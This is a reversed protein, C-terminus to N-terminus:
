PHFVPKLGEYLINAAHGRYLPQFDSDSEELLDLPNGLNIFGVSAFHGIASMKACHDIIEAMNEPLEADNEPDRVERVVVWEPGNEGEFWISPDVGPNSQWTLLKKGQSELSQRVVQVAFDHLEWDTM